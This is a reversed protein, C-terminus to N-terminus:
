NGREPLSEWVSAKRILQDLADWEVKTTASDRTASCIGILLIIKDHM